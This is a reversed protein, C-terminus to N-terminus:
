EGSGGRHSNTGGVWGFSRGEVERCGKREELTMFSTMGCGRIRCTQNKGTLRLRVRIQILTIGEAWVKVKISFPTWMKFLPNLYWKSVLRTIFQLCVCIVTKKRQSRKRRVRRRGMGENEGGM